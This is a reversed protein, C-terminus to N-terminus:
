PKRHSRVQPKRRSRVKTRRSRVQRRKAFTQVQRYLSADRDGCLIQALQHWKGKPSVLIEMSWSTALEYALAVAHRQKLASPPPSWHDLWKIAHDIADLRFGLPVHADASHKSGARFRVLVGRYNSLAKKTVAHESARDASAMLDLVEEIHARCREREDPPPALVNLADNIQKDRQAAKRHAAERQAAERQAAERQAAEALDFQKELDSRCKDRQEPPPAWAELVMNIKHERTMARQAAENGLQSGPENKRTM